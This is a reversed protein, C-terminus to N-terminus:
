YVNRRGVSLIALGYKGPHSTVYHSSYCTGSSVLNLAFWSWQDLSYTVLVGLQWSLMQHLPVNCTSKTSQNTILFPM